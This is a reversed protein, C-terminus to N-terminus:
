KEALCLVFEVLGQDSRYSYSSTSANDTACAKDGDSEDDVRSTVRFRADHDGCDARVLEDRDFRGCEGVLPAESSARNGAVFAAVVAFAIWAAHFLVRRIIRLNTNPDSKEALESAHREGRTTPPAAPLDATFRPLDARAADAAASDARYRTLADPERERRWM